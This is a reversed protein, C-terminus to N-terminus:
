GSLASGRPHRVHKHMRCGHVLSPRGRGDRGPPGFGQDQYPSDGGALAVYTTALSLSPKQSANGSPPALWVLRTLRAIQKEM